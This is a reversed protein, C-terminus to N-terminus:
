KYCIDFTAGAGAQKCHNPGCLTSGDKCDHTGDNTQSLLDLLIAFKFDGQSM